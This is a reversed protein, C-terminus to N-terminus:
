RQHPSSTITICAPFCPATCSARSTQSSPSQTPADTEDPDEFGFEDETPLFGARATGHVDRIAQLEAEYAEDDAARSVGTPIEGLKCLARAEEDTYKHLIDAKQDQYSRMSLLVVDQPSVWVRKWLKGRVHALRPQGDGLCQVEFRGDGLRRMVRAYQQGDEALLLERKSSKDSFNRTGRKSGGSKKQNTPVRNFSEGNRRSVSLPDAATKHATTTREWATPGRHINHV